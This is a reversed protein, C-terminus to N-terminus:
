VRTWANRVAFPGALNWRMMCAQPTDGRCSESTSFLVGPNTAPSPFTQDAFHYRVTVGCFFMFSNGMMSSVFTSITIRTGSPDGGGNHPTAHETGAFTDNAFLLPCIMAEVSALSMLSIAAAPIAARYRASLTGCKLPIM